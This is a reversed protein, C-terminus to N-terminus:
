EIHALELHVVLMVVVLIVKTIVAGSPRVICSVICVMLRRHLLVIAEMAIRWQLHLRHISIAHVWWMM